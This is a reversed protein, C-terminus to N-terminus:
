IKKNKILLETEEICWPSYKDPNKEIELLWKKWPIWKIANVEKPNLRPLEDTYGIMVPCIENEVIGDKEVKYRYDPLAVSIEANKIGLEFDLRRKATEIPAEDLLPHGCVSNSWVGGWTKKKKNRQQLLLEGKSNFLFLSIGRHLPTNKSHASLKPMTGLVENKENVLVVYDKMDFYINIVLDLVLM